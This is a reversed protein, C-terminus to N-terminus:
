VSTTKTESFEHTFVTRVCKGHLLIYKGGQLRQDTEVGDSVLLFLFSIFIKNSAGSPLADKLEQDTCNKCIYFPPEFDDEHLTSCLPFTCVVQKCKNCSHGYAVDKYCLAWCKGATVHM